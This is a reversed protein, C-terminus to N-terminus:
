KICFGAGTQTLIVLDSDRNVDKLRKDPTHISLYEAASVLDMEGVGTCVKIGPKLYVRLQEIQGQADGYLILYDATDLFIEASANSRLNQYAAEFDEGAGMNGTDTEIKVTGEEKYVSIVEVPLLRGVDNGEASVALLALLVVIYLIYRKM